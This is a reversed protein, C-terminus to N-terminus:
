AAVPGVAPAATVLAGGIAMWGQPTVHPGLRQAGWTYVGAVVVILAPVAVLLAPQVRRWVRTRRAMMILALAMFLYPIYPQM